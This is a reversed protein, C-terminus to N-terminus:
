KANFRKKFESIGAQLADQMKADVSPRFYPKAPVYRPNALPRDLTVWKGDILLAQKQQFHGHEILWWHPAKRKNVGVYFISKDDTDQKERFRYIASKLKGTREPVRTVVENYLVTAAAYAAPRYLENSADAFLKNLGQEINNDFSISFSDKDFQRARSVM